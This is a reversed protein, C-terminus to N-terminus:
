FEIEAAQKFASEPIQGPPLASCGLTIYGINDNVSNWLKIGQAELTKPDDRLVALVSLSDDRTLKIPNESAKTREEVIAALTATMSDFPTDLMETAPTNPKGSAHKTDKSTVDKVTRWGTREYRMKVFAKIFSCLKEPGGIAATVAAFLALNPAVGVINVFRPANFRRPPRSQPVTQSNETSM